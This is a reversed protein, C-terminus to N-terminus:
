LARWWVRRAALEVLLYLVGAVLSVVVLAAFLLDTRAQANADLILHGLGHESGVFEGVIAGIVALPM